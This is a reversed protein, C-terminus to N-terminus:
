NSNYGLLTTFFVSIMIWIGIEACCSRVFRHTETKVEELQKRIGNHEEQQLYSARMAELEQQQRRLRERTSAQLIPDVTAEGLLAIQLSCAHTVQEKQRVAALERLAKVWQDKYHQKSKALSELKRELEVQPGTLTSLVYVCVYVCLCFMCHIHVCVCTAYAMVHM